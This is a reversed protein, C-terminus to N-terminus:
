QTQFQVKSGSIDLNGSVDITIKYYVDPENENAKQKKLYLEDMYVKNFNMEVAVSNAWIPEGNANMAAKELRFESQADAEALRVWKKQSYAEVNNNTSNYRIMGDTLQQVPRQSTTGKPLIMADNRDIHVSSQPHKTGIGLNGNFFGVQKNSM